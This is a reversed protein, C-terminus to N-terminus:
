IICWDDTVVFWGKFLAPIAPCYHQTKVKANGGNHPTYRPLCSLVIYSDATKSLCVHKAPMSAENECDLSVLGVENWLSAISFRSLEMCM